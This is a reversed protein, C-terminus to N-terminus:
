WGVQEYMQLRDFHDRYSVVKGDRVQAIGAGDDHELLSRPACRAKMDKTAAYALSAGSHRLWEVRIGEVGASTCVREWVNRFTHRRVPGNREGYFVFYTHPVPRPDTTRVGGGQRVPGQV